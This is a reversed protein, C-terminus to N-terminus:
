DDRFKREYEGFSLHAKAVPIPKSKKKPKYVPKDEYDDEDDWDDTYPISAAPIKVSKLYINSASPWYKPSYLPKPKDQQSKIATAKFSQKMADLELALFKASPRNEIQAKKLEAAKKILASMSSDTPVASDINIGLAQLYGSFEATIEQVAITKLVTQLPELVPEGNDEQITIDKTLDIFKKEEQGSEYTNIVQQVYEEIRSSSFDKSNVTVRGVELQNVKLIDKPKLYVVIVFRNLDAENVISYTYYKDSYMSKM